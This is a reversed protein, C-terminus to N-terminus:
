EEEDEEESFPFNHGNKCVLSEFTTTPEIETTGCEPCKLGEGNLDAYLTMEAGMQAFERMIAIVDNVDHGEVEFSGDEYARVKIM